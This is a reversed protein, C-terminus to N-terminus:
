LNHGSKKRTQAPVVLHHNRMGREVTQRVTSSCAVDYPIQGAHNTQTLVKGADKSRMLLNACPVDGTICALHLATNGHKDCIREIAGYSLLVDVCGRSGGTVAEHLATLQDPQNRTNVDAGNNLLSRCAEENGYLAAVHLAPMAGPVMLNSIKKRVDGEMSMKLVRLARHISEAPFAFGPISIAQSPKVLDGDAMDLLMNGRSSGSDRNSLSHGTNDRRLASGPRSAQASSTRSLGWAPSQGEEGDRSVMVQCSIYGAPVFIPLAGEWGPLFMPMENVVPHTRAKPSTTLKLDYRFKRASNIHYEVEVVEQRVKAALKGFKKEGKEKPHAGGGGGEAAVNLLNSSSKSLAPDAQRLLTATTKSPMSTSRHLNGTSAFPPPLGLSAAYNRAANAQRNGNLVNSTTHTHVKKPDLVYKLKLVVYYGETVISPDFVLVTGLGRQGSPDVKRATKRLDIGQKTCFQDSRLKFPQAGPVHDQLFQFAIMPDRSGIDEQQQLSRQLLVPEIASAPATLVELFQKRQQHASAPRSKLSEKVREAYVNGSGEAAQLRRTKRTRGMHAEADAEEEEESEIGTKAASTSVAPLASRRAPPASQPRDARTAQKAHGMEERMEQIEGLVETRMFRVSMNHAILQKQGREDPYCKQRWAQIRTASNKEQLEQFLRLASM